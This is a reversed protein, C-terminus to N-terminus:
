TNSVNGMIQFVLLFCIMRFGVNFIEIYEFTQRLYIFSNYYWFDLTVERFAKYMDEPLPKSARDFYTKYPSTKIFLSIFM